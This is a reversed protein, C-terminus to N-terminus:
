STVTEKPKDERRRISAASLIVLVMKLICSLLLGILYVAITYKETNLNAKSEIMM